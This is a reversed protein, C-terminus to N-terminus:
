WTRHGITYSPEDMVIIQAEKLKLMLKMVDSYTMAVQDITFSPQIFRAFSIACYTKSNGAQGTFIVNSPKQNKIRHRVINSFYQGVGIDSSFPVVRGHVKRWGLQGDKAHVLISKDGDLLPM